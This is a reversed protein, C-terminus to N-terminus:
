IGMNLHLYIGAEGLHNIAGEIRFVLDYYTIFDLGAGYGYIWRNNL